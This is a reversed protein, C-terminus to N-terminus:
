DSTDEKCSIVFFGSIKQFKIYVSKGLFQAKYVDQYATFKPNIPPMTKYFDGVSLSQILDVVDHDSFGLSVAGQRASVTVRLTKISNMERQISRLDYTPDQYNTVM